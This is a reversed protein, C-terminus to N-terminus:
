TERRTDGNHLLDVRMKFDHWPGEDSFPFDYESWILFESEYMTPNKYYDIVETATQVIGLEFLVEAFDTICSWNNFVEEMKELTHKRSWERQSKIITDAAYMLQKGIDSHYEEETRDDDQLRTFLQVQGEHLSILNSPCSSMHIGMSIEGCFVCSELPESSVWVRYENSNEEM